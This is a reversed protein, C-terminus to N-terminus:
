RSEHDVLTIADTPCTSVCLGCGYCLEPDFALSGDSM